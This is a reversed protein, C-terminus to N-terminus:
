ARTVASVSHGAEIDFYEPNDAGLPVSDTGDTASPSAGWQVWCDSEAYLRCKRRKRGTGVIAASNGGDITAATYQLPDGEAVSGAAEWVTISVDAM